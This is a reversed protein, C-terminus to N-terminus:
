KNLFSLFSKRHEPCPGHKKNNNFNFSNFNITNKANIQNKINEKIYISHLVLIQFINYTENNKLDDDNINDKIKLVTPYELIKKDFQQKDEETLNDYLKKFENYKTENTSPTNKDELFGIFKEDIVILTIFKDICEVLSM